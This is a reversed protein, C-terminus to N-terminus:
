RIRIKRFANNFTDAVYLNGNEDIALDEPDYFTASLGPGNNFGHVGTGAITTVVGRLTVKRILENGTDAVYLNGSKDVALGGPGFFTASAGSGDSPDGPAAARM